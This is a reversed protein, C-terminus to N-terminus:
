FILQNTISDIESVSLIPVVQKRLENIMMELEQIKTLNRMENDQLTDITKILKDNLEIIEVNKNVEDVKSKIVGADLPSEIKILDAELDSLLNEFKYDYKTELMKKIENINFEFYMTGSKGKSINYTNTMEINFKAQTMQYKKGYVSNYNLLAEETSLRFIDDKKSQKVYDALYSIIPSQSNDELERHLDSKTFNKLTSTKLIM